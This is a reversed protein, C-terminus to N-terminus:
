QLQCFYGTNNPVQAILLLDDFLYIYGQYDTVDLKGECIYFRNRPQDFVSLFDEYLKEGCIMKM